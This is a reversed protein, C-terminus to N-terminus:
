FALCALFQRNFDERFVVAKAFRLVPDISRLKLIVTLTEM